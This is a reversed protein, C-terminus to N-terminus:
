EQNYTDLTSKIWYDHSVNGGGRPACEIYLRSESLSCSIIRDFDYYQAITAGHITVGYIKFYDRQVSISCTYELMDVWQMTGIPIGLATISEWRYCCTGGALWAAVDDTTIM